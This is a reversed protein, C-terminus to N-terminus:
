DEQNKKFTISVPIDPFNDQPSIVVICGNKGGTHFPEEDDRFTVAEGGNFVLTFNGTGPDFQIDIINTQNYGSGLDNTETWGTLETFVTGTLEGIIYECKTNILVMLMTNDYSCFVVGYGAADNGSTKSLTVNLHHFPSFVESGETWLTYGYQGTYARDNTTLTVVGSEADQVFLSSNEEIVPGDPLGPNVPVSSVPCGTFLLAGASVTIICVTMLISKRM